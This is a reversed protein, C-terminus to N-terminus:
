GGLASLLVELSEFGGAIADTLAGPETAGVDLKVPVDLEIPM